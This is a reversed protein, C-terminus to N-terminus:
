RSGPRQDTEGPRRNGDVEAEGWLPTGGLIDPVAFVLHQHGPRLRVTAQFQALDKSAPLVQFGAKLHLNSVESLRGETDQAMAGLTVEAQYGPDAVTMALAEVPLRITIPLEVEDRGGRRPRGAEVAIQRGAPDGGYMLVSQAAIRAMTGPSLSFYQRRARVKVGRHRVEVGIRHRGESSKPAFGLSYYSSTDTIVEALAHDRGSLVRGGTEEALAAFSWDSAQQWPTSLPNQYDSLYDHSADNPSSLADVRLLEVPYVTYGLQGADRILPQPVGLPMGGSLLLLAKRGAPVPLARLAAGAAEAVQRVARAVQGNGLLPADGYSPPPDPVRSRIWSLDDFHQSYSTVMNFTDVDGRRAALVGIGGARRRRAGALAAALAARDASWGCLVSLRVGDFAVIAMRDGGSLGALGGPAAIDHEMRELVFDRYVGIAVSDDVFILLNRPAPAVAAALTRGPGDAAGRPGPEAATAAAVAGEAVESFYTVPVEERDVWLRFDAAALGHVPRGSRDSVEVEVNVVRVDISENAPPVQLRQGAVGPAFVTLLMWAFCKPLRM